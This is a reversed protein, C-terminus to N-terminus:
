CSAPKLSAERDPTSEAAPPKIPRFCSPVIEAQAPRAKRERKLQTAAMQIAYLAQGAERTGIKRALMLNSVNALSQIIAETSVLPPLEISIRPQPMRRSSGHLHAHFYCYVSERMAPSQCHLGSPMVHHCPQYM